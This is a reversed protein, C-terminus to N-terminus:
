ANMIDNNMNKLENLFDKRADDIEKDIQSVDDKL